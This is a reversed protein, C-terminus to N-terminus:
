KSVSTYNDHETVFVKRDSSPYKFFITQMMFMENIQEFNYNVQINRWRAKSHHEVFFFLVIEDM